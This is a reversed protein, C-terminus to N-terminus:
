KRLLILIAIVALAAFSLATGGVVAKGVPSEVIQYVKDLTLWAVIGAGIIAAGIIAATIAVSAQLVEPDDRVSEIIEIEFVVRNNAPLNWHNIRFDKRRELRWEILTLQTATIWVMGITKFQMEIVDGPNLPKNKDIEIKEIAM